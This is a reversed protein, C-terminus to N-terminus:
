IAGLEVKEGRLLKKYDELAKLSARSAVYSEVSYIPIRFRTLVYASGMSAIYEQMNRNEDTETLAPKLDTVWKFSFDPIQRKIKKELLGLKKTGYVVHTEEHAKNYINLDRNGTDRTFIIWYTRQPSQFSIYRGGQSFNQSIASRKFYDASKARVEQLREHVGFELYVKEEHESIDEVFGDDRLSHYADRTVIELTQFNLVNPKIICLRIKTIWNQKTQTQM